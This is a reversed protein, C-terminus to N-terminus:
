PPENARITMVSCDISRSVKEAVSGFRFHELGTRGHTGMVILDIEKKQVVSEIKSFPDGDLLMRKVRNGPLRYESDRLLKPFEQSLRIKEGRIMISTHQKHDDGYEKFKKDFVTLTYITSNYSAALVAAYQLARKSAPSFDLPVLIKDAQFTEEVNRIQPLMFSDSERHKRKKTVLVPCPSERLVKEAVSGQMLYKLGSVGRSGMVIADVGVKRAVSLIMNAPVGQAVLKKMPITNSPHIRNVFTCLQEAATGSNEGVHLIYVTAHYIEALSLGKRVAFESHKSFDVPILIKQFQIMFYIM